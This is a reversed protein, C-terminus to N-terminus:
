PQVVLAPDGLQTWGLIVDLQDPHTQAYQQKAQLIAEGMTTGQTLLREFVEMALIREAAAETLTSAGLVSAAGRDDNLMFRHGLTDDYPSVYYTNWCGWQTVVTPMGVNELADVDAGDLLGDFTWISLDSHGFFSTLAVGNNIADIITDKAGQVGLDDIYATTINWDSLHQNIVTDSDAKFSYQNPTDFKDAAFVATQSYTNQAYTLTQNVMASLEAQTRVPFRGIAVDPVNDGDVDAYQADVPAFYVIDDTQAYQTPIFSLAGLGLNDHYDYSDGGVLLVHTTGKNTQAYAIYDDIPQAGPLYHGFQAYVQEVDVVEVSYQAQRANVLLDLEPTIFDPHTIILYEAAASTIDVPDVPITIEPSTMDGASAVYFTSEGNPEVAAGFRATYNTGQGSKKIKQIRKIGGTPTERYIVVNKNPLGAVEYLPANGKFVLAGDKAILGRPYTVSYHDLTVLDAFAGTDAPLKLTLTNTGEQLAGAPLPSSIPHDVLGDFHEDAVATGNWEVVLHHDPSEPAVTWGWVGVDLTASGATPVYHDIDLTVDIQGPTTGWAFVYQDYWPDGNPASSSYANDQEIRVTELYTNQAVGSPVPAKNTPVQRVRTDSVSLTYVNSQTYLTEHEKGIFEIITGPGVFKPGLVRRAVDEGQSSLSLRDKRVGALDVDEAM